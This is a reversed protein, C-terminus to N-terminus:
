MFKNKCLLPLKFKKDNGYSNWRRIINAKSRNWTGAVLILSTLMAIYIKKKHSHKTVEKM